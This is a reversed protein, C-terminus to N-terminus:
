SYLPTTFLQHTHPPPPPHVAAGRWPLFCSEVTLWVFTVEVYCSFVISARLICVCVCVCRDIYIYIYIYIYPNLLWLYARILILGYTHKLPCMGALSCNGVTGIWKEGDCRLQWIKPNNKCGITADDGKRKYWADPPTDLDACGVAPIIFLGYFPKWLNIEFDM